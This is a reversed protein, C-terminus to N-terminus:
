RAFRSAACIFLRRCRRYVLLKAVRSHTEHAGETWLHVVLQGILPPAGHADLLQDVQGSLAVRAQHWSALLDLCLSRMWLLVLFAVLDVLAQEQRLQEAM